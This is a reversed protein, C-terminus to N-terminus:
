KVFVQLNRDFGKCCHGPSGIEFYGTFGVEEGMLYGKFNEPNLKIQDFNARMEPTIKKRKRYTSFEQAELVLHGGPILQRYIRKFLFKIGEDGHNLHIWKTLSLCLITDYQPKELDLLERNKLIYDAKRFAVTKLPSVEKNNNDFSEEKHVNERAQGSFISLFPSFIGLFCMLILKGILEGDIDIGLISKPRFLRAISITIFGVNCGIDLVKKDEFLNKHDRLMQLHNDM